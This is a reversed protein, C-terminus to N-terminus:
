NIVNGFQCENVPNVEFRIFFVFKVPCLGKSRSRLIESPFKKYFSM